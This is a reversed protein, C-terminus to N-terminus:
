KSKFSADTLTTFTINIGFQHKHSNVHIKKM